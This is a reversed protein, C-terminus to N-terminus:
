MWVLAYDTEMQMSRHSRCNQVSGCCRCRRPWKPSQGYFSLTMDSNSALKKLGEYQPAIASHCFFNMRTIQASLPNPVVGMQILKQHAIIVLQCLKLAKAEALSSPSNTMFSVSRRTVSITIPKCLLIRSARSLQTCCLKITPRQQYQVHYGHIIRLCPVCFSVTPSSLYDSAKTDFSWHVRCVALYTLLPTLHLLRHMQSCTEGAARVINNVLSVPNRLIRQTQRLFVGAEQTHLLSYPMQPTM